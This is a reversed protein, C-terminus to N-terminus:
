FSSCTSFYLVRLFRFMQLMERYEEWVCIMEEELGSELGQPPNSLTPTGARKAATRLNLFARPFLIEDGGPTVSNPTHQSLCTICLPWHELFLGWVLLCTSIDVNINM